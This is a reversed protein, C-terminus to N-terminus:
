LEIDVQFNKVQIQENLKAAKATLEDQKKRLAKVDFTNVFKIEAGRSRNNTIACRQVISRYVGVRKLMLDRARIADILTAYEKDFQTEYNAKCIARDMKGLKTYQDELEQFLEVPDEQPKDGEQVIGAENIRQQLDSIKKNVSDKELLLAGLKM